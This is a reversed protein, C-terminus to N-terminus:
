KRAVVRGSTAQEEFKRCRGTRPAIVKDSVITSLAFNGNSKDIMVTSAFVNARGLVPEFGAYDDVAIIAHENDTLIRYRPAGMPREILFGDQQVLELPPRGDHATAEHDSCVWVDVAAALRSAM